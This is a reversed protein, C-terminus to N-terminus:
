FWLIEFDDSYYLIFRFVKGINQSEPLDSIKQERQTRSYWQIIALGSLILHRKMKSFPCFFVLTDWISQLTKVITATTTHSSTVSHTLFLIESFFFFLFFWANKCGESFSIISIYCLNQFFNYSFSKFLWQKQILPFNHFMFCKKDAEQFPRAITFFM